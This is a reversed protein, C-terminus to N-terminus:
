AVLAPLYSQRSKVVFELREGLAKMTTEPPGNTLIFPHINMYICDGDVLLFIGKNNISDNLSDKRIDSSYPANM